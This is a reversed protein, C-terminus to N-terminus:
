SILFTFFCLLVLDIFIDLTEGVPSGLDLCALISDPESELLRKDVTFVTGRSNFTSFMQALEFEYRKKDEKLRAQLTSIQENKSKIAEELRM